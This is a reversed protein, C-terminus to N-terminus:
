GIRQTEVKRWERFLAYANPPALVARASSSSRRRRPTQPCVADSPAACDDGYKSTQSVAPRRPRGGDVVCGARADDGCQAGSGFWRGGGVVLVTRRGASSRASQRQGRRVLLARECTGMRRQTGGSSRSRRGDAVSRRALLSSSDLRFVATIWEPRRFICRHHSSPGAPLADAPIRLVAFFASSWSRRRLGSLESDPIAHLSHRCASAALV